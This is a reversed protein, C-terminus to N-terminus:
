EPKMPLGSKQWGTEGLTGGNVSYVQDPNWGAKVLQEAAARSRGATKCILLLKDKSKDFRAAVQEVFEPLFNMTGPAFATMLVANAAHGAQYEEASRVDILTVNSQKLLEFAEQPSINHFKDQGFLRFSMGLM